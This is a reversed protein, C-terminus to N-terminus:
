QLLDELTSSRAAPPDEKPITVTPEEEIPEQGSELYQRARPSLAGADRILPANVEIPIAGQDRRWLLAHGVKQDCLPYAKADGFIDKCLISADERGCRFAIKVGVNNLVMSRMRPTLQALTQHALVLSLKFRRGEALIGEFDSMGFNEFEDVYLRVPNRESEPQDVRAFIERCTSSLFMNGVMKGASHLEDVALSVAMVSGSTDYHKALDLPTAHGLIKRLTPTAMLPSVKNLVPGALRAQADPPQEDFRTWFTVLSESRAEDIRMRRYAEDYFLRELETLPRTTEALLLFANRMTEALQVGWSEAQTAIVDLAHLARFYPEGAGRIPNFGLPRAKERLDLVKVLDRPVRRSCLEVVANKLDGRMDLVAVSHGRALDQAILHQLAVTKGSGTSGIVLTHTRLEHPTISVLNKWPESQCEKWGAHVGIWDRPVAYSNSMELGGFVPFNPGERVGKSGIPLLPSPPRLETAPGRREDAPRASFSICTAISLSATGRRVLSCIRTRSDPFPSFSGHICYLGSIRTPATTANPLPLPRWQAM